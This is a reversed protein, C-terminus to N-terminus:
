LEGGDGDLVQGDINTIVGDFDDAVWRVSLGGAILGHLLEVPTWIRVEDEPEDLLEHDIDGGQLVAGTSYNVRCGDEEFWPQSTHRLWRLELRDALAIRGAKVAALAARQYCELAFM